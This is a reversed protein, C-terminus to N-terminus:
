DAYSNCTFIAVISTDLELKVLSLQGAGLCLLSQEFSGWVKEFSGAVELEFETADVENDVRM